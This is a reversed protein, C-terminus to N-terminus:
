SSWFLTCAPLHIDSIGIQKYKCYISDDVFCSAKSTAGGPTSQKGLESQHTETERIGDSM